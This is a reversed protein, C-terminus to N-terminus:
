LNTIVRNLFKSSFSNPNAAYEYDSMDCRMHCLDSGVLYAIQCTNDDQVDLSVLNPIVMRLLTIILSKKKM